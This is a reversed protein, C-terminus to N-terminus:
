EWSLLAAALDDTLEGGNLAEVDRVLDSLRQLDGSAPGPRWDSRSVLDALGDIGLRAHDVGTLGEILGDTYLLLAGGAETAVTTPRWPEAPALGLPPRTHEPTLPTPRGAGILLPPPHGAIYFDVHRRDPHLSVFAATTFIDDDHREHELVRELVAIAEDLPREALMLTRWAIRLCAGLAAEDPGQGCVDGIAAIVTGDALEVADYFDGGLLARRRGARYATALQITPDRVLATPLLGRQLRVNEQAQLQVELLERSAAEAQTREVAYRIARLLLPGGVQGKVLYEQAGAGLSDIGLREDDRGTLVIIPVRQTQARIRRLADLGQADPLGLDLLVCHIEDDIRSTAAAVSRERVVRVSPAAEALMETVLLADGDDDEILLVNM